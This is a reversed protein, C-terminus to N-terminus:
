HNEKEENIEEKLNNKVTNEDLFDLWDDVTNEPEVKRKTKNWDEVFLYDYLIDENM